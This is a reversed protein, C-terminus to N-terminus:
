EGTGDGIRCGLAVVPDLTRGVKCRHDIKRFSAFERDKDVFLLKGREFRSHIGLTIEIAVIHRRGEVHQAGIIRDPGKDDVVVQEAFRREWEIQQIPVVIRSAHRYSHM